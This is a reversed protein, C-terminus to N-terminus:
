LAILLRERREGTVVRAAVTNDSAPSRVVFGIDEGVGLTEFALVGPLAYLLAREM